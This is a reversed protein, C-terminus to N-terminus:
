SSEMLETQDADSLLRYRGVQDVAAVSEWGEEEEEALSSEASSENESSESPTRQAQNNHQSPSLWPNVSSPSMNGPIKQLLVTVRFDSSYLKNPKDKHADDLDWKDIRLVLMRNNDIGLSSCSNARTERPRPEGGSANSHNNSNHQNNSAAQEDYSLARVTRICDTTGDGLTGNDQGTVVVEDRVFFTNFWFHFMKDKRITKRCFEVKVDGTIPIYQSLPLEILGAGKKVEKPASTFLKENQQSITFQINGCQAGNFLPAPELRIERIVLTVPRYQLAEQVLTAYYGVYRRQSPITVGKKDTTRKSGYFNLADKATLHQQSHIMYCCVMVGTRGKGAKCHVAAVNSEDQSLWQHVDNCFPQIVEMRPPNHDDFPYTAVQQFRTEDYSRESCLNYIKYHDKHKAELFKVVDDIHNRYVAELKEAPFGMAILNHTIYTLDLNFGDKTYRRKSKSVLTKIPNHIKMNSITNAMRQAFGQLNIYSLPYSFKENVYLRPGSESHHERHQDLNLSHTKNNKPHCTCCSGMLPSSM